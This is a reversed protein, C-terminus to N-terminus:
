GESQQEETSVRIQTIARMASEPGIKEPRHTHRRTLEERFRSSVVACLEM